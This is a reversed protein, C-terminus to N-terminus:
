KSVREMEDNWVEPNQRVYDVMMKKCEELDLNILEVGQEQLCNEPGPVTKNEGIVVQPIKYLLVLGSCMVCPIMTTYLTCNKYDSGKLRGANELCDMEAHLITSEKQEIRNHGRGIIEGNEVLVAGIPVGGENLSKRAEEIAEQMFEQHKNM